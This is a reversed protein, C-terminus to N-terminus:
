LNSTTIILSPQVSNPDNPNTNIEEFDKTCGGAILLCIFSFIYLTNKMTKM